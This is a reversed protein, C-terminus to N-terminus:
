AAAKSRRPRDDNRFKGKPGDSGCGATLAALVVTLLLAVFRM